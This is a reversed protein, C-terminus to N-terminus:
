PSCCSIAPTAALVDSCDDRRYRFGVASAVLTDHARSRLALPVFRRIHVGTLQVTVADVATKVAGIVALAMEQQQSGEEVTSVGRSVGSGGSSPPQVDVKGSVFESVVDSVTSTDVVPM